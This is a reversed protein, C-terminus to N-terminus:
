RERSEEAGGPRPAAAAVARYGVLLVQLLRGLGALEEPSAFDELSRWLDLREARAPHPSGSWLEDLSVGLAEALRALEEVNPRKAGSELTSLRAPRLRARRALEKQNWGRRNRLEVIRRGLASVGATKETARQAM